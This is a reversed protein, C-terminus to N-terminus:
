VKSGSQQQFFALSKQYPLQSDKNNDRARILFGILEAWQERSVFKQEM